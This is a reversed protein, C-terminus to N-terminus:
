AMISVYLMLFNSAQAPDAATGKNESDLGAVTLLLDTADDLGMQSVDFSSSSATHSRVSQNRTTIIMNGHSARFYTGLNLKIEDANDLILLWNERRTELWRLGDQYTTGANKIMAINALDSTLTSDSSANIFLVESFSCLYYNTLSVLDNNKLPIVEFVGVPNQISSAKTSSSSRM